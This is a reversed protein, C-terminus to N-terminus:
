CPGFSARPSRSLGRTKQGGITYLSRGQTLSLDSKLCDLRLIVKGLMAGEIGLQAVGERPLVCGAQAPVDLQAEADRRM